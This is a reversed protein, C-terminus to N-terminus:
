ALAARIADFMSAHAGTAAAPQAPARKTTQLVPARTLGASFAAAAADAALAKAEAAEPTAGIYEAILLRGDDSRLQVCFPEALTAQLTPGNPRAVHFITQM